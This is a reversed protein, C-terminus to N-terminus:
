AETAVAFEVLKLPLPGASLGPPGGTVWSGPGLVRRFVWRVPVADCGPGERPVSCGRSCEVTCFFGLATRLEIPEEREADDEFLGIDVAEPASLLDDFGTCFRALSITDSPRSDLGGNFVWCEWFPLIGLVTRLM